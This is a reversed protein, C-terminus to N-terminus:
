KKNSNIIEKIKDIIINIQNDIDDLFEKENINIFHCGFNDKIYNERKIDKEINKKLYHHKEMWEICINYESIYGDVWYRYFKKEGGNLAHQIKVGIKESIQEIFALSNPNHRPIHKFWIEGYKNIMTKIVKNMIDKNQSCYEVGYKKFNTIRSKKRVEENQFPSECGLNKLNTNRVKERISINCNLFDNYSIWGNNKYIEHPSLPLNNPNNLNYWEIYEKRTIINLDKLFLKADDYSLFFKSKNQTGINKNSLFIGWSVWGNDKYVVNPNTPLNNPNNLKHWNQYEKQSKFYFNVLYNQAEEYSLFNKKKSNAIKELGCKKCGNGSLHMASTQPFEGHKPCIIIGNTTSNIYIFKSYDYFNNHIINGRDEFEQQTLPALGLCKKCRSNVTVFDYYSVPWEYNDINCKMKLITGDCGIYKFPEQLICNKEICRENVRGEAEEQTPSKRMFYINNKINKKLLKSLM